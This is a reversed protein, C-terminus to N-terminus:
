SENRLLKTESQALDRERRLLEIKRRMLHVDLAERSNASRRGLNEHEVSVGDESLYSNDDDHDNDGERRTSEDSTSPKGTQVGNENLVIAEEAVKQWINKELADLRSILDAKNGSTPFGRSQLAQKLQVVTFSSGPNNVM